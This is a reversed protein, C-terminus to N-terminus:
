NIQNLQEAFLLELLAAEANGVPAAANDVVAVEVATGAAPVGLALEQEATGAREVHVLEPVVPAHEV